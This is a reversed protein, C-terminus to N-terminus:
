HLLLCNRKTKRCLFTEFSIMLDWSILDNPESTREEPIYQNDSFHQSAEPSSGDECKMQELYAQGTQPPEPVPLHDDRPIPKMASNINPYVIKHKNKASFGTVSVCCQEQFFMFPLMVSHKSILMMVQSSLQYM